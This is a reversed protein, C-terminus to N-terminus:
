GRPIKYNGMDPRVYRVGGRPDDMDGEYRPIIHWHLHDVTRGAAKGDNLGHNYADPKTGLRPHQLAQQNFWKAIDDTAEDSFEQYVARLDAAEIVDIAEKVASYYAYWEVETLDVLDAVHRKPVLLGHGPSVPFGDLVLFLLNNEYLVRSKDHQVNCFFCKEMHETYLGKCLCLLPSELGFLLFGRWFLLCAKHRTM